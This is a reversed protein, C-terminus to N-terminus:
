GVLALARLLTAQDVGQAGSSVNLRRLLEASEEATLEAGMLACMREVDRVAVIGSEAACDHASHAVAVVVAGERCELFM